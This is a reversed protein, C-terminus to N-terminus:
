PQPFTQLESRIRDFMEAPQLRTDVSIANLGNNSPEEDDRQKRYLEPRADSLSENRQMRKRIRDIAEPEPCECNVLLFNAKSEIALAAFRQRLESKLFTGDLVVSIGASVLSTMRNQMESYVQQRNEESYLQDGYGAHKDRSGFMSNRIADTQLHECGLQQTIFEALTTKGTGMLGRVMLVIPQGLKAAHKDAIDLLENTKEDPNIVDHSSSNTHALTAVKARVCARYSKYFEVLGFEPDCEMAALVKHLIRNGTEEASLYECQMALFALEDVIDITRYERNFEICDIVIPEPEFYIHDPRLDGHGEVIWGSRKNSGGLPSNEGTQQDFVQSQIALYEMQRCHIRKIKDSLEQGISSNFQDLLAHRNDVVHKYFLSRYEKGSITESKLGRYFDTLTEVLKEIHGSELQNQRIMSELRNQDSLRVMKVACEVINGTPSKGSQEIALEGNNRIVDVVGLYVHPALRRNLRVEEMCAQRRQQLTSYDLFDFTLAKKFKYAFRDVLFVDSIHTQHHEVPNGHQKILVAELENTSCSATPLTSKPKTM